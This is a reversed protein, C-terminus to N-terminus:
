GFLLLTAWFFRCFMAHVAGHSSSPCLSFSSRKAWASLQIKDLSVNINSMAVLLPISTVTSHPRYVSNHTFYFSAFSFFLRYIDFSRSTHHRARVSVYYTHHWIPVYSIMMHSLSLDIHLCIYIHIAVLSVSVCGFSWWWWDRERESKTCHKTSFTSMMQTTFLIRIAQHKYVSYSCVCFLEACCLVACCVSEKQIGNEKNNHHVEEEKQKYKAIFFFNEKKRSRENNNRYVNAFLLIAIYM